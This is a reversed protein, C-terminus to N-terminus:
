LNVGKLAAPVPRLEMERLEAAGLERREVMLARAISLEDRGDRMVQWRLGADTGSYAPYTVPSVDFLREMKTVVVLDAKIKTGTEQDEIEIVEYREEKPWFAFSQQNVDERAILTALDRAYSVPAMDADDVLGVEDESLRLTGNTTRALVFNKDHNFLMRVDDTLVDSFAGPAIEEFFGWPPLGIYTRQNFVAAHGTFRLGTAEDAARKDFTSPVFRRLQSAQGRAKAVRDELKMHSMKGGKQTM